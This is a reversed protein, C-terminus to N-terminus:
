PLGGASIAIPVNGVLKEDRFLSHFRVHLVDHLLEAGAVAGVGDGYGRPAAKNLQLSESVPIKRVTCCRERKARLVALETWLEAYSRRALARLGFTTRRRLVGTTAFFCQM